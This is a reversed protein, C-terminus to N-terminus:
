RLQSHIPLPMRLLRSGNVAFSTDSPISIGATNSLDFTATDSATNPVTGSSWNSGTNWDNSGPSQKWTGSGAFAPADFLFYLAVLASFLGIPTPKKM